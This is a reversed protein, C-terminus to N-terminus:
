NTAKNSLSNIFLNIDTFLNKRDKIISEPWNWWNSDLLESIERGSFRYRIFKAPVGGVITYPLVNKTVVSYPLLVAGTGIKIGGMLKVGKGIWVDSGIEVAVKKKIDVFMFENFLQTDAFTVGCQKKTSYFVPHTSVYINIPHTAQITEVDDAISCFNGIYASINSNRGIYSYKGIHGHFFTNKGLKNYGAFRSKLSVTNSYNLSLGKTGIHFVSIM